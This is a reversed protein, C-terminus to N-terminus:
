GEARYIYDMWGAYWAKGATTNLWRDVFGNVEPQEFLWVLFEESGDEDELVNQVIESNFRDRAKDQDATSESYAREAARELRGDHDLEDHM